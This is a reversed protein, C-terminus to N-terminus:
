EYIADNDDDNVDCEGSSYTSAPDSMYPSKQFAVKPVSEHLFFVTFFPVNDM